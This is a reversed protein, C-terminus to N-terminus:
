TQCIRCCATRTACSRQEPPFRALLAPSPAAAAAATTLSAESVAAVEGVDTSPSLAPVSDKGQIADTPARMLPIHVVGLLDGPEFDAAAVIPLVQRGSAVFHEDSFVLDPQPLMEVLYHVILASLGNSRVLNVSLLQAEGSLHVSEAGDHLLHFGGGSDLPDPVFASSGTAAHHSSTLEGFIRQDSPRPPAPSRYSRTNLRVSSYQMVSPPVVFAWVALSSTPQGIKFFQVSLRASTLTGLPAPKAAERGPVLLATRTTTSPPQLLRVLRNRSTEVPSFRLPGADLFPAFCFGRLASEMTSPLKPPLPADGLPVIDGVLGPHDRRTLTSGRPRPRRLPSLWCM